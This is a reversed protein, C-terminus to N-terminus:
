FSIFATVPPPVLFGGGAEQFWLRALRRHSGRWGEPNKADVPSSSRGSLFVAPGGPLGRSFLVALAPAALAPRLNILLFRASGNWGRRPDCIRRRRIATSPFQFPHRGRTNQKVACSGFLRRERWASPFIVAQKQGRRAPQRLASRECCLFGRAIEIISM